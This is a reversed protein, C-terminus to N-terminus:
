GTETSDRTAAIDRRMITRLRGLYSVDEVDTWGSRRYYDPLTGSTFLFLQRYGLRAVYSAAAELLVAGVGRSRQSRAVFLQGLWPTFQPRIPMENALLNVSGLATGDITATLVRPRAMSQAADELFAAFAERSGHGTLLGWHAFQDAAILALLPSGPELPQISLNPMVAKKLARGIECGLL